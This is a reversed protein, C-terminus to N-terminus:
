GVTQDNYNTDYVSADRSIQDIHQSKMPSTVARAIFEVGIVASRLLHESIVLSFTKLSGTRTKANPM